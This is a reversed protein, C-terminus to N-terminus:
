KAGYTEFIDYILVFILVILVPLPLLLVGMCALSHSDINHIIQKGWLYGLLAWALMAPLFYLGVFWYLYIM